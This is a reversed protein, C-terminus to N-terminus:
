MNSASNIQASIKPFACLLFHEDNLLKFVIGCGISRVSLCLFIINLDYCIMFDIIKMWFLELDYVMLLLELWYRINTTKMKTATQRWTKMRRLQQLMFINCIVAIKSYFIVYDCLICCSPVDLPLFFCIYLHFLNSLFHSIFWWKRIIVQSKKRRWEDKGAKREIPISKYMQSVINM